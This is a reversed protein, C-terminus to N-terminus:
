LDWNEQFGDKLTTWGEDLKNVIQNKEAETMVASKDDTIVIGNNALETANLSFGDHAEYHQYPALRVTDKRNYTVQDDGSFNQYNSDNTFRVKENFICIPLARTPFSHLEQNDGYYHVISATVYLITINTQNILH